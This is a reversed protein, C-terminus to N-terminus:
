PASQQDGGPRQWTEVTSAVPSLKGRSRLAHHHRDVSPLALLWGAFLWFYVNMPDLDIFPAKLLNGVATIFFTLLGAAAFRLASQQLDRSARFAGRLLAFWLAVTALLGVIGLEYLQKAYWVEVGAGIQVDDGMVYRAAGTNTGLGHGLVWGGGVAEFQLYTVRFVYDWALSLIASVSGAVRANALLLLGAVLPTAGLAIKWKRSLLLMTIVQAPMWILFGRAGSTVGAVAILVTSMVGIRRWAPSSDGFWLAMTLPFICFLFSYYQGVFSFTSPIRRVTFDETVGLDVFNQTVKAANEGYMGYVVDAYGAYILIAQTVGVAAPVGATAVITRLWFDSHRRTRIMYRPLFILPVYLPWVKLGILAVQPSEVATRAAQIVTILGLFAVGALVSAPVARDEGHQWPAAAVFGVYAPLVFLLDKLLVAWPLDSLALSLAGAFPLFLILAGVAWRWRTAWLGVWPLWVLLALLALPVVTAPLRVAMLGTGAALLLM